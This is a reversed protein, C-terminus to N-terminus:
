TGRQLEIALGIEVFISTPGIARGVPLLFAAAPATPPVPTLEGDAGLFLRDQPTWSWGSNTVAVRNVPVILEGQLPAREIIGVVRGIHDLDGNQAYVLGSQELVVMRYSLLAASAPYARQEAAPGAPGQRAVSVVHVRDEKVTVTTPM